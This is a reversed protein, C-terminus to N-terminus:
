DETKISSCPVIFIKNGIVQLKGDKGRALLCVNLFYRILALSQVSGACQEITGQHARFTSVVAKRWGHGELGPVEAPELLLFLKTSIRIWYLHVFVAIKSAPFLVEWFPVFFMATSIYFVLFLSKITEKTSFYYWSFTNSPLFISVDSTSSIEKVQLRRVNDNVQLM